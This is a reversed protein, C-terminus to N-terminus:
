AICLEIFLYDFYYSLNYSSPFTHSKSSFLHFVIKYSRHIHIHIYNKTRWRQEECESGSMKLNNNVKSLTNVKFLVLLWWVMLFLNVKDRYGKLFYLNKVVLNAYKRRNILSIVTLLIKKYLKNVILYSNWFLPLVKNIRKFKNKLTVFFIVILLLNLHIFLTHLKIPDFAWM